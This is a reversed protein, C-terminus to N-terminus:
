SLWSYAWNWKGGKVSRSIGHSHFVVMTATLGLCVSFSDTIPLIYGVHIVLGIFIIVSLISCWEVKSGTPPIYNYVLVLHMSAAICNKPKSFPMNCLELNWNWNM